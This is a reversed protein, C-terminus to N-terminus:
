ASELDIYNDKKNNAYNSKSACRYYARYYGYGSWIRWTIGSEGSMKLRTEYEAIWEANEQSVELEETLKAARKAEEWAMKLCESFIAKEEPLLERIYKGKQGDWLSKKAKKDARKKIEWARQM